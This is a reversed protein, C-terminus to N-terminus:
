HTFRPFVTRFFVSKQCFPRVSEIKNGFHGRADYNQVVRILKSKM